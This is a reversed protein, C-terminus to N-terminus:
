PTGREEGEQVSAAGAVAQGHEPCFPSRCERNNKHHCRWCYVGRHLNGCRACKAPFTIAECAFCVGQSGDVEIACAERETSGSAPSAGYSGALIEGVESVVEPPLDLKGRTDIGQGALVRAAAAVGRHILEMSTDQAGEAPAPEPERAERPAPVFKSCRCPDRPWALCPGGCPEHDDASHGCTACADEPERAEPARPAPASELTRLDALCGILMACPECNGGDHNHERHFHGQEALKLLTDLSLRSM